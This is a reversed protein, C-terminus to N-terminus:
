GMDITNKYEVIQIKYNESKPFSSMNPVIVSTSQNSKVKYNQSKLKYTNRIILLLHVYPNEEMPFM